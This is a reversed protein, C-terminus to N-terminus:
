KELVQESNEDSEDLIKENTIDTFFDKKFDEKVKEVDSFTKEQKKIYILYEKIDTICQVSLNNMNSFIGNSNESFLMKHKKLILFIDNHHICDISDIENRIKKLEETNVNTDINM